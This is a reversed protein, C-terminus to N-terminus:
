NIRTLLGKLEKFKRYDPDAKNWLDANLNFYTEAQLTDKLSLYYKGLEYNTESLLRSTWFGGKRISPLNAMTIEGRHNLINQINQIVTTDGLMMKSLVIEKQALWFIPDGSYHKTIQNLYNLAQHPKRKLNLLTGRLYKQIDPYRQAFVPDNNGILNLRDIEDLARKKQSSRALLVSALGVELYPTNSLQIAKKIAKNMDILNGRDYSIEAMLYHFYAEEEPRNEHRCLQMGLLCYEFAKQLQGQYHYLAALHAYTRAKRMSNAKQLVAKLIYEASDLQGKIWLSQAMYLDIVLYDPRISKSKKFFILANEADGNLAYIFGSNNFCTGALSSDLQIARNNAQLATEYDGAMMALHGLTAHGIADSPFRQIRQRAYHFAKRYDGEFAPGYYLTLIIYRERETVRDVLPLVRNHYYLAKKYNETKLYNYSLSSIAITFLSDIAVAQEKLEIAETYKGQAELRIGRTYLELAEISSTTVKALPINSKKILQISEGLDKRIKTALKDIGDLVDEVSSVEVRQMKLIEGNASNIIRSTLVYESGIKIIDGNIVMISGERLALSLATGRDLFQDAALQMRRLAGAIKFRPLINLYTSQRLTVRLAETLSHDFVSEDTRNEFDALVIHDTSKLEIPPKYFFKWSFLIIILLAIATILIPYKKIIETVKNVTGGLDKGKQVQFLISLIEDFSQFRQTLDKNLAKKIIFKLANPVDIQSLASLDPEENVITYLIAQPYEGGFPLKGTTMQYLLIGFSFIDTRHDVPKGSAQEPSMYSVTGVAIGTKTTQKKGKLKALGFDVIKVIGENTIIINAPKIDRHIIGKEHAKSLGKAIQIAINIIKDTTLSARKIKESLTEGEYHAMCIYSQEDKIEDIEHITCINPHDLASAAQAEKIFREKTEEDQTLEPPLFKLAVSRKLKTDEAKYVVGMGGSGLKELIKYHSVTEGIM